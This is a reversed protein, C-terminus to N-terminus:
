KAPLIDTTDVRNRGNQKARYLAYDAIRFLSTVSDVQPSPYTAIGLSITVSLREMPPVFTLAQVAERLREAVVVGGSLPSGPLVVVFEEGGYRAVVDYTRLCKQAADAIAVLVTDGHQHGFADNVKKFHDVDCIALSLFERKREAREFEKDLIETVYRRNYLGTLSDKQSLGRFHEITRNLDDQLMKIRLHVKVRAVLEAADFPKTVYDCAGQELGKVKLEQDSSDALIIIPIDRLEESTNVMQLFKFGDMRPMELDCIVLDPKVNKISKFGELGDKAEMYNGFLAAGKLTRIIQERFKGSDDIVLVSFFM